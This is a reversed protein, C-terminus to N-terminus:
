PPNCAPDGFELRGRLRMEWAVDAGWGLSLRLEHDGAQGLPGLSTGYGSSTVRKVLVREDEHWVEARFEYAVSVNGVRPVAADLSAPEYLLDLLLHPHCGGAVFPFAHATPPALFPTSPALDRGGEWDVLVVYPEPPEAAAVPLALLLLALLAARM